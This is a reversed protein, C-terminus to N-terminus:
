NEVQEVIRFSILGSYENSPSISFSFGCNEPWRIPLASQNLLMASETSMLRFLRQSVISTLPAQRAATWSTAFLQVCTAWHVLLLLKNKAASDSYYLRTQRPGPRLGALLALNIILVRLVEM